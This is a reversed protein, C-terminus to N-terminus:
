LYICVYHLTYYYYYVYHTIKEKNKHCEVSYVCASSTAIGFFDVFFCTFAKFSLCANKFFKFIFLIVIFYFFYMAIPEWNM